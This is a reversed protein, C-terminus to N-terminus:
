KGGMQLAINAFPLVVIACGGPARNGNSVAGLWAGLGDAACGSEENGSWMIFCDDSDATSCHHGYRRGFDEEGCLTWGMMEEDQHAGGGSCGRKKM